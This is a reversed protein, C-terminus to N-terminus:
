KSPCWFGPDVCDFYFGYTGDACKWYFDQFCVGYLCSGGLFRVWSCGGHEYCFEGCDYQAEESCTWGATTQCSGLSVANKAKSYLMINLMLGFCAILGLLVLKRESM